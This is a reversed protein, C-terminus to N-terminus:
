VVSKRDLIKKVFGEKNIEIEYGVVWYENGESDLANNGRISLIRAQDPAVDIGVITMKSKNTTNEFDIIWDPNFTALNQQITVYQNSKPVILPPDFPDGISNEVPKSPEGEKDGDQYSKDVAREYQTSGFSVIIPDDLPNIAGAGGTSEPTKYTVDVYWTLFDGGSNDSDSPTANINICLVSPFLPSVAEGISPLGATNIVNLEVDDGIENTPVNVVFQRKIEYGNETLKADVAPTYGTQLTTAM